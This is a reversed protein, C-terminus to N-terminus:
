PNNLNFKQPKHLVFTSLCLISNKHLFYRLALEYFLMVPKAQLAQKLCFFRFCIFVFVRLNTKM